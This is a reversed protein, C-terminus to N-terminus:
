QLALALVTLTAVTALVGLCTGGLRARRSSARSVTQFRVWGLPAWLLVGTILGPSYTWTALSGIVHAAANGLVAIALAIEIFRLRPDRSVLQAGACMLALAFANWAVFEGNSFQIGLARQAWVMFGGCAFYEELLHVAYTVPFLWVANAPRTADPDTM